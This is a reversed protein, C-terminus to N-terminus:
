SRSVRDERLTQFETTRKSRDGLYSCKALVHLNYFTTCKRKQLISVNHFLQTGSLHKYNISEFLFHTVRWGKYKVALEKLLTQLIDQMKQAGICHAGLLSLRMNIIEYSIPTYPRDCHDRPRLCSSEESAQASTDHTRIGGLSHNYTQMQETNTNTADKRSASGGGLLGVSERLILFSFHFLSNKPHKISWIPAVPFLYLFLKHLGRCEHKGEVNKV